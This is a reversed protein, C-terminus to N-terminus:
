RARLGAFHEYAQRMDAERDCRDFPPVYPGLGDAAWEPLADGAEARRVENWEKRSLGVGTLGKNVTFVIRGRRDYFTEREYQRLVPFQVRYITCLEDATLGLALAALADLEVLAQRRAYPTRLPTDRRWEPGLHSWPSPLRPDPKAFADTAFAPDWLESWLPAYHTTLCNLRLARSTTPPVPRALFPFTSVQANRVHGTGAVKVLFDLVISCCLGNAGFNPANRQSREAGEKTRGKTVKWSVSGLGPKTTASARSPVTTSSFCSRKKRFLHLTSRFWRRNRGNMAMRSESPNM